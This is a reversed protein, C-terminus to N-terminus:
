GSTSYNIYAASHWVDPSLSVMIECPVQHQDCVVVGLLRDSRGGTADRALPLAPKPGADGKELIVNRWGARARKGVSLCNVRRSVSASTQWLDSIRLRLANPSLMLACRSHPLTDGPRSIGLRGIYNDCGRESSGPSPRSLRLVKNFPPHFDGRKVDSSIM